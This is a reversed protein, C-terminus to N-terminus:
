YYNSLLSAISSSFDYKNEKLNEEVTDHDFNLGMVTCIEEIMDLQFYHTKLTLIESM